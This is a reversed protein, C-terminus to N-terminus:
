IHILSLYMGACEILIFLLLSGCLVGLFRFPLTILRLLLGQQRTQQRAAVNAPDAM